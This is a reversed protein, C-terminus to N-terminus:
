GDGGAKCFGAMEFKGNPRKVVHMMIVYDSTDGNTMGDENAKWRLREPM